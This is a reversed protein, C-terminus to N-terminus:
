LLELQQLLLRLIPILNALHEMFNEQLRLIIQNTVGRNKTISLRYSNQPSKVGYQDKARANITYVGPTSWAHTFIVEEGSAYPGTYPEYHGDGWSIMYLLDHGDPDISRLTFKMLNKPEGKNPGTITPKEPPKDEIITIVTPDSWSSQYGHSDKLKIRILFEGPEEWIHTACITEGSNYPGLWGTDTGDGWDFICYIKDDDPEFVEICFEYEGWTYGIGPGTINTGSPPRNKIIITPDGLITMGYFWSIDNYGGPDDSYPYEYEFWEKLATGFSAGNGIPEYFYQFDLMSGTKASGVV